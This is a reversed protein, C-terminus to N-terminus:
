HVKGLPGRLFILAPVVEAVASWIRSAVAVAAAVPLPLLGLLLGTLAGEKAGLGAPAIM